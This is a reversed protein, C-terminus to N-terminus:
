RADAEILQLVRSRVQNEVVNSGMETESLKYERLAKVLNLKATKEKTLAPYFQEKSLRSSRELKMSNETAAVVEAECKRISARLREYYSTGGKPAVKESSARILCASGLVWLNTPLPNAFIEIAVGKLIGLQNEITKAEAVVSKDAKSDAILKAALYRGAVYTCALHEFEHMVHGAQDVISDTDSESFTGRSLFIRWAAAEFAGMDETFGLLTPQAIDLDSLLRQPFETLLRVRESAKLTKWRGVYGMVNRAYSDVVDWNGLVLNLPNIDSDVILAPKAMAWGGTKVIVM